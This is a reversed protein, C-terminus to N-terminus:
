RRGAPPSTTMPTPTTPGSCRASSAPANPTPRSWPRGRNKPPAETLDMAPLYATTGDARPLTVYGVSGLATGTLEILKAVPVGSRTFAEGAEGPHARM